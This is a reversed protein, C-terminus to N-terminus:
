SVSTRLQCKNRVNTGFPCKNRRVDTGFPCVIKTSLIVLLGTHGNFCMNWDESVDIRKTKIICVSVSAVVVCVGRRFFMGDFVYAFCQYHGYYTFWTAVCWKFVESHFLKGFISRRVRVGNDCMFVRHCM